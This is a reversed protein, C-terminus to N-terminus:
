AAMATVTSSISPTGHAFHRQGQLARKYVADADSVYDSVYLYIVGTMPKWQETADGIMLMSDGIKLEAHMIGGDPRTMRFIEQAELAQKLFEIVKAAGDVVLCPTMSHYGEPIPKVAM